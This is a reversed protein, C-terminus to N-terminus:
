LAWKPNIYGHMLQRDALSLASNFVFIEALDRLVGPTAIPLHGLYFDDVIGGDVFATSPLASVTDFFETYNQGSKVTERLFFTTPHSLTYGATIAGGDFRLSPDPAPNLHIKNTSDGDVLFSGFGYLRNNNATGTTQYVAMITADSISAVGFIDLAQMQDNTVDWRSISLGNQIGTKYLPKKNTTGQTVDNGNGSKDEAAGIVDGDSSVPTIKGSDIFLTTIDSFDIWKKLSAINTPVFESPIFERLQLADGPIMIRSQSGRRAIM